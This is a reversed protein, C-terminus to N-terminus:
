NLTTDENFQKHATPRDDIKRIDAVPYFTLQKQGEYKRSPRQVMLFGEIFSYSIMDDIIRLADNKITITLVRDSPM